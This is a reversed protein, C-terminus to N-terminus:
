SKRGKRRKHIGGDPGIYLGRDRMLRELARVGLKSPRGKKNEWRNITVFTVGLEGALEEQTLGLAKRIQQIQESIM